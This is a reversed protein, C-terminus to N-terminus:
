ILEYTLTLIRTCFHIIYSTCMEWLDNTCVHLESVIGKHKFIQNRTFLYNGFEWKKIFNIYVKSKLTSVGYHCTYDKMSTSRVTLSLNRLCKSKINWSIQKKRMKLLQFARRQCWDMEGLSTHVLTNWTNPPWYYHLSSFYIWFIWIRATSVEIIGIPFVLISICILTDSNM